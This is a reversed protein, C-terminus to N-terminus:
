YAFQAFMNLPYCFMARTAGDTANKIYMTYYCSVADPYYSSALLHTAKLVHNVYFYLGTANGYISLIPGYLGTVNIGTDTQTGNTGNGSSAWLNGDTDIYFAVHNQTLSPATPAALLGLWFTQTTGQRISLKMGWSYGYAAYAQWFGRTDYILGVSNNTVGTYLEGFLFGITFGGTGTHGATFGNIDTWVKNIFPMLRQSITRIPSLEDAGLYDHRSAHAEFVANHDFAWESTPAKTAEDETPPNELDAIALYDTATEAAMTGVDGTNLITEAGAGHVGTDLDKHGALVQSKVNAGTIKKTEDTEAEIDVIPVLDTDHLTAKANLESIKLDAM